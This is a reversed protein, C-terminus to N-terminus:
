KIIEVLDKAILYVDYMGSNHGQEYAISYLKDAKPHGEIGLDVYLDKRFEEEL